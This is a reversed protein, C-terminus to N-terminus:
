QSQNIHWLFYRFNDILIIVEFALLPIFVIKLNVAAIHYVALSANLFNSPGLM